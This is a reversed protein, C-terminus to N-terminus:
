SSIKKRLFLFNKTPVTTLSTAGFPEWGGALLHTMVKGLVEQPSMGLIGTKFNPDIFGRIYENFTIEGHAKPTSIIIKDRADYPFVCVEWQESM